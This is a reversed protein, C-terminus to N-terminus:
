AKDALFFECSEHAWVEHAVQSKHVQGPTILINVLQGLSDVKAHIKTSLGGVSSGIAEASRDYSSRMADQHVKIISGDLM